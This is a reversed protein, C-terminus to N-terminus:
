PLADGNRYLRGGGIGPLTRNKRRRLFDLCLNTAVRYLWTTVAADGRFAARGQWARLLVEQTLDEADHLSGTMRYCLKHILSRHQEFTETM